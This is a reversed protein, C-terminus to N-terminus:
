VVQKKGLKNIFYLVIPISIIGITVIVNLYLVPKGFINYTSINGFISKPGILSEINLEAFVKTLNYTPMFRGIFEPGLLIAVGSALSVLNSKSILSALIIVLTFLLVGIFSVILGYIYFTGINITYPTRVCSPLFSMPVDWGKFGHMALIIVQIGNMILFVFTSFILGTIVKATTLKKQGNKSSFVISATNSQYENSFITCISVLILISMWMCNMNFDTAERWGFKFYYKPNEKKDVLDHIYKLEKYEYNNIDGEKELRKLEKKMDNFTYFRGNIMYQPNAGLMYDMMGFTRVKEKESM